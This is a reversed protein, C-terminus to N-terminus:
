KHYYWDTKVEAALPLGETWSFGRVMASELRKSFSLAAAEDIEGGIEDHTHLVTIAETEEAELRVLTQRLISAALGQTSNEIFRGSWLSARGMGKLHVIADQQEGFKEVKQIKAKPYVIPRGDPLFCVLTGGMLDPVFQYKLRGAEHISMPQRMAAFAAEECRNGFVRAWKNRDRWSDVWSKADENTLRFGYNRAMRKLAGTSGLFGLSLVKVKGAQRFTNAESDGNKYREWIVDAPLRGIDEANLVYVDPVSEDADSARFPDLVSREADRSKALWPNVRAEIASWDGWVFKRRKPAIFTPRIARSLVATVATQGRAAKAIDEKKKSIPLYRLKDIEVHGAIMDLVDLENPLKDRSLNHEQLNKSSFRGSQGAGNFVYANYIRGDVEQDLMKQFKVSSSSRGYQLLDILDIVDDEPPTETLDIEELLRTMVDKAGTIRTVEGTEEDRSKVMFERLDDPLREFVWENIQKTLTPGAIAGETLRACEAAVYEAEEERYQVAGRAVDLDVLKGRDNIHESTWYEVWETQDLPRTTKWVARMLETDQVSYDLYLAWDDIAQKVARERGAAYAEEFVANVRDSAKRAAEDAAADILVAAGPLPEQRRAFRQMIAKGGITKHGLGLMRGAWELTGPLNSAQGQAMADLTQEIAIDPFGYEPTAIQQWVARDFACNWAIVYGDPRACHVGVMVPAPGCDAMRGEVYAWVEPALEDGLDPCWLKVPADDIAWSLLLPRTSPDLVYKLTGTVPLDALSQTEWDFFLYSAM